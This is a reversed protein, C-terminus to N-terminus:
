TSRMWRKSRGNIVTPPSSAPIPGIPLRQKLTGALDPDMEVAYVHGAAGVLEALITNYYGTGAGIHAIRDGIQVDLEDLLRAHLSPSGNNDGKDPQLAFLADQYALVLDSALLPRCGGGLNAIQWPPAGLFKERPVVAFAAEIPPNTTGATAAVLHAYARRVM